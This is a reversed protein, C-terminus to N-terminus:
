QGTRGLLSSLYAIIRAILSKNESRSLKKEPKLSSGQKQIPPNLSATRKIYKLRWGKASTAEGSNRSKNQKVGKAELDDFLASWASTDETAKIIFPNSGSENQKSIRNLFRPESNLASNAREPPSTGELPTRPLSQGRDSKVESKANMSKLEVNTKGRALHTSGDLAESHSSESPSKESASSNKLGVSLDSDMKQNPSKEGRFPLQNETPDVSELSDSLSPLSLAKTTEFASPNEESYQNLKAPRFRPEEFLPDPKVALTPLLRVEDDSREAKLKLPAGIKQSRKSSTSFDPSVEEIPSLTLPSKERQGALTEARKRIADELSPKTQATAALSEKPDTTKSKQPKPRDARALPSEMRVGFTQRKVSHLLIDKKARFTSENKESSVWELLPTEVEAMQDSEHWQYLRPAEGRLQWTQDEPDYVPKEGTFRWSKARDEPVSILKNKWEWEEEFTDLSERKIWSGEETKLFPLRARVTIAEMKRESAKVPGPSRYIRWGEAEDNSAPSRMSPESRLSSLPAAGESPATAGAQAVPFSTVLPESVGSAVENVMEVEELLPAEISNAEASLAKHYHRSLKFSLVNPMVPGSILEYIGLPSWNGRFSHKESLIIIRLAPDRSLGGQALRYDRFEKLLQYTENLDDHALPIFLVCPKAEVLLSFLEADLKFSHVAFLESDSVGEHGAKSVQPNLEHVFLSLRRM